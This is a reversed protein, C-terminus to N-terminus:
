ELDLEDYELFHEEEQVALFSCLATGKSARFVIREFRQSDEATIIGSVM